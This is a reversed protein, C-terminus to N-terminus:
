GTSGSALPRPRTSVSGGPSNPRSGYGTPRRGARRSSWDCGGGPARLGLRRRRPVCRRSDLTTPPRVRDSSRPRDESEVARGAEWRSRSPRRGQRRAQRRGRGRRGAQAASARPTTTSRPSRSAASASSSTAARSGARRPRAGRASAALKVGKTTTARLRSRASTPRRARDPRPRAGGHPDEGARGVKAFGPREPRRALDLLLLEGFDAIRAM